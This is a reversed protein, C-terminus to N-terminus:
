KDKPPDQMQYFFHGCLIGALFPIIPWKYAATYINWSITATVGGRYAFVADFALIAIIALVTFIVTFKKSGM